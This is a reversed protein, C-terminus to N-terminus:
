ARPVTVASLRDRDPCREHGSRPLRQKASVRAGGFSPLMASLHIAAFAADIVVTPV